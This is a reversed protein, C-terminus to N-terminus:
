WICVCVFNFQAHTIFRYVFICICWAVILYINIIIVNFFHTLNTLAIKPSSAHCKQCKTKGIWRANSYFFTSSVVIIISSKGVVQWVCWNLPASERVRAVILPTARQREVKLIVALSIIPDIIKWCNKTEWQDSDSAWTHIDSIEHM